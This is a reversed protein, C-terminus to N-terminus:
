RCSAARRCYASRGARWRRATNGDAAGCASRVPALRQDDESGLAHQAMRVCGRRERFERPRAEQCTTGPGRLREVGLAHQDAVPLIPWSSRASRLLRLSVCLRWRRGRVAKDTGPPSSTPRCDVPMGIRAFDDPHLFLGGVHAREDEDHRAQPADGSLCGTRETFREALALGAVPEALACSSSCFVRRERENVM